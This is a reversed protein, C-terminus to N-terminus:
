YNKTLQRYFDQYSTEATFGESDEWCKVKGDYADSYTAYSKMRGDEIKRWLGGIFKIM